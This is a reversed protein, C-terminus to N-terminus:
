VYDLYSRYGKALGQIMYINTYGIELYRISIFHDLPMLTMVNSFFCKGYQVQKAAYCALFVTRATEASPGPDLLEAERFFLVAERWNGAKHAARIVTAYLRPKMQGMMILCSVDM